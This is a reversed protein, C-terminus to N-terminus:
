RPPQREFNTERTLDQVCQMWYRMARDVQARANVVESRLYSERDYLEWKLRANAAMHNEYDKLKSM